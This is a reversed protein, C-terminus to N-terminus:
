HDEDGKVRVEDADCKWGRGNRNDGGRRKDKRSVLVERHRGACVRSDNKKRKGRCQERVSEVVGRVCSCVCVCVGVFSSSSNEDGCLSGRFTFCRSSAIREERLTGM